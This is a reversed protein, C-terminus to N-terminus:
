PVKYDLTSARCLRDLLGERYENGGKLRIIEQIHRPIREIWRQIRWQELERWAKYWAKKAPKQATLAGKKTTVRKLHPWAPEIMNMDPSNGCWTLRQVEAASMLLDHYKAVHSPAKDEQILTNPLDKQCAQAFPILKPTLIFTAYRYWDVGKGDGRTLKGHRKDWKWTPKKGTLNRIGTRRIATTLEWEARAIPELEANIRTLDATATARQQITEPTWIHCPGKRHYSFSGWFM